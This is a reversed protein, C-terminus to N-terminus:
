RGPVTHSLTETSMGERCGRAASRRRGRSDTRPSALRQQHRPLRDLRSRTRDLERGRRAPNPAHGGRGVPDCGIATHWREDPNKALCKRVVRDLAPPTQPQKALLSPPERELVAAIVSSQSEAAFARTGTLIEYLLAGLAFVDSRADAERGELQEPSMYQVTGLLTGDAM